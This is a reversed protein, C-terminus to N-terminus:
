TMEGKQNMVSNYDAENSCVKKWHPRAAQTLEVEIGDTGALQEARRKAFYVSRNPTHCILIHNDDIM